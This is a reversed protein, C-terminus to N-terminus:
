ELYEIIEMNKYDNEDLEIDYICSDM